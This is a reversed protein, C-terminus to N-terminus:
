GRFRLHYRTIVDEVKRRTNRNDALWLWDRAAKIEPWRRHQRVVHILRDDAGLWYDSLVFDLALIAAVGGAGKHARHFVELNAYDGEVLRKVAIRKSHVGLPDMGPRHRRYFDYIARKYVNCSKESCLTGTFPKSKRRGFARAKSEFIALLCLRWDWGNEKCMAEFKALHERQNREDLNPRRFGYDECLHLYLDAATM